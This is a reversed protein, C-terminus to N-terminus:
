QMLLGIGCGALDLAIHEFNMSFLPDDIKGFKQLPTLVSSPPSPSYVKEVNQPTPIGLFIMNIM